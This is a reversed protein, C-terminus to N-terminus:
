CSSIRTPIRTSGCRTIPLFPAVTMSITLFFAVVQKLFLNFM